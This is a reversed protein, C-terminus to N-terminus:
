FLAAQQDRPRRGSRAVQGGRRDLLSQDVSAIFPSPLTETLEGRLMRKAATLLTLQTTARTMGGNAAPRPRHCTISFAPFDLTQPSTSSAPYRASTDSRAARASMTTVLPLAVATARSPASM